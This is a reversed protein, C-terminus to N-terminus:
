GPSRRCPARAPTPSCSPRLSSTASQNDQHVDTFGPLPNWISPATVAQPIPTCTMAGTECDPETGEEVYYKWSVDYKHLLYTIDTWAYM